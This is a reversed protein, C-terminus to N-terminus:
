AGHICVPTEATIGETVIIAILIFPWTLFHGDTLQLGGAAGACPEPPPAWVLRRSKWPPVRCLVRQCTGCSRGSGLRFGAGGAAELEAGPFSILGSCHWACGRSTCSLRQEAAQRLWRPASVLEGLIDGHASQSDANSVSLTVEVSAGFTATFM